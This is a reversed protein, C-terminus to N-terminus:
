NCAVVMAAVVARNGQINQGHSMDTYQMRMIFAVHGAAVETLRESTRYLTSALQGGSTDGKPSLLVSLWASLAAAPM